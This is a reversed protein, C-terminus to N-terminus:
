KRKRLVWVVLAGIAVLIGLFLASSGFLGLFAGLGTLIGTWLNRAPGGVTPPPTQGEGAAGTEESEFGTPLTQAYKLIDRGDAPTWGLLYGIPMETGAVGFRTRHLFRWPDRNAVTGLYEDVGETRFVIKKGDEGHCEACIQDYLQKGHELSGGIVQLSVPDIYQSDDILGEKLFLALAQMHKEDLYPSFDHAPDKQGKLHGVIEDVELGEVARMINPFGTYHSGSGYAGEVGKYDWGHCESCRWTDAGSRTNTTQRSWIPMDGEPPDVGLVAYWRDYLQAGLVIDDQQAFVVGTALLAVVLGLVGALVHRKM